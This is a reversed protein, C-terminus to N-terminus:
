TSLLLPHDPMFSTVDDNQDSASASAQAQARLRAVLSDEWDIPHMPPPVDLLLRLGDRIRVQGDLPCLDVKIKCTGLGQEDRLDCTDLVGGHLLVPRQPMRTDFSHAVEIVRFDPVDPIWATTVCAARADDPHQTIIIIGVAERLVNVPSDPGM